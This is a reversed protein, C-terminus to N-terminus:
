APSLRPDSLLSGVDNTEVMNAGQRGLELVREASETHYAIWQWNGPLANRMRVFLKEDTFLYDPKLTNATRRADDGTNKVAWGIAQAGQRRAMDLCAHDFSIVACQPLASQLATMIASVVPQVGHYSLSQRKIEVFLRVAPQAVLWNALASLRSLKIDAYRTGFRAAEGISIGDLERAPSSTIDLDLEATRKLSADHCVFPVHDASLQVDCELWRAGAAVAAAFGALTNEPFRAPWGRHGVLIPITQPPM